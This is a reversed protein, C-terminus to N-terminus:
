MQSLCIRHWIFLIAFLLDIINFISHRFLRYVVYSKLVRPIPRVLPARDWLRTDVHALETLVLYLSISNIHSLLDYLYPGAASKQGGQLASIYPFVCVCSSDRCQQQPTLLHWRPNDLARNIVKPHINQCYVIIRASVAHSTPPYSRSLSVLM